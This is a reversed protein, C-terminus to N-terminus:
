WTTMAARVWTNTAICTYIFTSTVRIEGVTGTATASAPATTGIHAYDKWSTGDHSSLKKTTNNYIIFGNAGNTISATTGPTIYLAGNKYVRFGDKESFEGIGVRFAPDIASFSNASGFINQSRTGVVVEGYTYATNIFGLTSSYRGSAENGFGLTSTSFNSSTNNQGTSFATQSSVINNTGCGFADSGSVTNSSGSSFANPGSVTNSNGSSFANEAGVINSRGFTSSNESFPNIKSLFYAWYEYEGTTGTWNSSLFGDYRNGTYVGSITGLTATSYDDMSLYRFEGNDIVTIEYDFFPTGFDGTTFDVDIGEIVNSGNTLKVKGVGKGSTFITGRNVTVDSNGIIYGKDTGGGGPTIDSLLALTGDNDPFQIIRDTSLLDTRLRAFMNSTQIGVGSNNLMLGGIATLGSYYLYYNFPSLSITNSSGLGDSANFNFWEEVNANILLSNTSPYEIGDGSTYFRFQPSGGAYATSYQSSGYPTDVFIGLTTSNGNETISQLDIDLLLSSITNNINTISTNISNINNQLNIDNTQLTSINGQITLISATIGSITTNINTIDNNVDSELQTISNNLSVLSASLGPIDDITVSLSINDIDNRLETFNNNVIVMADRLKDGLGDNATLGVNINTM